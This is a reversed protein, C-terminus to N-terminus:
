KFDLFNTKATVPSTASFASYQSLENFPWGFANNAASSLGPITSLGVRGIAWVGSLVVLVKTITSFKYRSQDYKM